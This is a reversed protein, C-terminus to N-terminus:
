CRRSLEVGARDVPVGVSLNFYRRNNVIELYSAFDTEFTPEHRDHAVVLAGPALKDLALRLLPAYIAKRESPHDVDIFLLDIPNNVRSLLVFADERRIRVETSLGVRRFNDRCTDVARLDLDCALAQCRGYNNPDALYPGLFWVLGNGYYTGLGVVLKPKLSEAIGFFLRAAATTISTQPVQFNRRVKTSLTHFAERSFLGTAEGFLGVSGLYCVLEATIDDLYRRLEPTEHASIETESM